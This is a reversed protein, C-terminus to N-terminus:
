SNDMGRLLLKAADKALGSWYLDTKVELRALRDSIQTIDFNRFSDVKTELTALRDGIPPLSVTRQELTTLRNELRTINEGQLRNSSRVIAIIATIVSSIGIVLSVVNFLDQGSM